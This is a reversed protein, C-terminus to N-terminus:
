AGRPGEYRIADVIEISVRRTDHQPLQARIQDSRGVLVLQIAPQQTAGQIAGAIIERPAFDGGSADIALRIVSM